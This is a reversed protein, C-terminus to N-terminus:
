ELSLLYRYSLEYRSVKRDVFDMIEAIDKDSYRRVTDGEYPKRDERDMLSRRHDSMKRDLCRQLENLAAIDYPSMMPDSHDELKGILLDAANHVSLQATYEDVIRQRNSTQQDQRRASANKQHQITAKLLSNETTAKKLAKARRANATSSKTRPSANSQADNGIASDNEKQADSACISEDEGNLRRKKSHQERAREAQDLKRKKTKQRKALSKARAKDISSMPEKSSM